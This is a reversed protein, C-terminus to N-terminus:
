FCFKNFKNSFYNIKMLKKTWDTSVKYKRSWYEDRNRNIFRAVNYKLLTFFLLLISNLILTYSFFLADPIRLINFDILSILVNFCNDALIRISYSYYVVLVSHAWKFRHETTEGATLM